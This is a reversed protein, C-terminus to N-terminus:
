KRCTTHDGPNEACFVETGYGWSKIRDAVGRFLYERRDPDHLCVSRPQLKEIFVRLDSSDIQDSEPIPLFAVDINRTRAAITDLAQQYANMDDTGFGIYVINLGDASVLYALTPMYEPSTTKLSTVQIGNVDCTEWPGLYHSNRGGRWADDKNHIFGANVLSDGLAHLFSFEGSDAHFCTYLSLLSQGKIEPLVVFGNALSPEPPKVQDFEEYDFILLHDSTRVSWGRNNLYWCRASGRPLKEGIEKQLDTSATEKATAPAAARLTVTASHHGYRDALALPTNGSLDLATPDAGRSLLLKVIDAYGKLAAVHLPSRGWHVDALRPNAKHELLRGALEANGKKCAYWLASCGDPDLSNPDAEHELLLSAIEVRGRLAADVLPSRGDRTSVDNADVGVELLWRAAPLSGFAIAGRLPTLGMRNPANLDVKLDRQLLLRSMVPDQRSQCERMLVASFLGGYVQHVRNIDAGRDLLLSVATTQGRLAATWLPTFGREDLSELLSPDSSLLSELAPLDGTGAAQHIPGALAIGSFLILAVVFEHIAGIRFM